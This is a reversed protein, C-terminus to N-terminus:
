TGEEMYTPDDGAATEAEVWARYASDTALRENHRALWQRRAQYRREVEAPTPAYPNFPDFIFITM